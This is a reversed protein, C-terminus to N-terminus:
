TRLQEVERSLFASTVQVERKIPQELGFEIIVPGIRCAGM